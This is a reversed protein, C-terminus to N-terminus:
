YDHESTCYAEKHVLHYVEPSKVAKTDIVYAICKQCRRMHFVSKSCKIGVNNKQHPFTIVSSSM